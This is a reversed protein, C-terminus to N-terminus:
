DHHVMAKGIDQRDAPTEFERVIRGGSMVGIRDALLLIEDLDESILLVGAGSDRAKLLRRHVDSAARVDLGRSPSHAMVIRPQSAFERAIVLKQANGGSLLGARQRIARVGQVDFTKVACETESKAQVTNIIAWNGFSGKRVGHVSYNDGISLDGALAYAQRDAPISVLGFDRRCAAGSNTVDGQGIFDIRGSSPTRVGMIIEALETQGNGGVGAIGYIEGQRVQFTADVLSRYGDSRVGSVADLKMIIDGVSQAPHRTESVLEGVILSTLEEVSIKKPDVTRVTKGKRMITARDAFAKVEPLKHTVLVVAAGKKALKRMTRLLSDAETDTLVASPEDFILIKPNSVLVKLIEVRQQEAVSLLGVPRDLNIEFGLEKNCRTIERKVETVGADYSQLGSALLINEVATFSQVLKFHQHVMGIGLNKATTPDDIAVEKGHIRIRGSDPRYLGAVVNMLSSKGAGNEGLLAHVEGSKVAFKASSLAQFGDFSKSVSKIDLLTM